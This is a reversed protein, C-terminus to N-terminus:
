TENIENPEFRKLEIRIIGEDIVPRLDISHLYCDYDKLFNNLAEEFAKKSQSVKPENM